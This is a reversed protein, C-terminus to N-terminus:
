VRARRASVHLLGFAFVGIALLALSSPEPVATSATFDLSTLSTFEIVDGSATSFGAADQAAGVQGGTVVGTTIPTALTYGLLVPDTSIGISSGYDSNFLFVDEYNGMGTSPNGNVELTTDTLTATYAGESFTGSIGSYEYYGVDPSTISATDETYTITFMGSVPSGTITGTGVGTLTYYLTAAHAAPASFVVTLAFACSLLNRKTTTM